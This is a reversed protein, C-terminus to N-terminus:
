IRNQEKLSSAVSSLISSPVFFGDVPSANNSVMNDESLTTYGSGCWAIRHIVGTCGHQFHLRLKRGQGDYFYPIYDATSLTTDHASHKTSLSKLVKRM